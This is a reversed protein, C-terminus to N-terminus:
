WCESEIPSITRPVRVTNQSKNKARVHGDRAGSADRRYGSLHCSAGSNAASSNPLDGRYKKEQFEGAEEVTRDTM